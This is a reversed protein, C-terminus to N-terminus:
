TASGPQAASAAATCLSAAIASRRIRGSAVSPSTSPSRSRSMSPPAADGRSRVSRCRRPQVRQAERQLVATIRQFRHGVDRRVLDALQQAAQPRGLVADALVAVRHEGHVPHLEFSLASPPLRVLRRSASSSAVPSAGARVPPSARLGPAAPAQSAPALRSARSLFPVFGPRDHRAAARRLAARDQRRLRLAPGLRPHAPERRPELGRASRIGRARAATGLSRMLETGLGRGQWDDAVVIACEARDTGPSARMAASGSSGSARPRRSSPASPSRTWPLRAALLRAADERTIGKRAHVAAAPAPDARLPGRRLALERDLDDPRLARITVPTGDAALWTRELDAPYDAPRLGPAASTSDNM